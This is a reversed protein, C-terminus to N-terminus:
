SGKFEVGKKTNGHTGNLYNDCRVIVADKQRYNLEPDHEAKKKIASLEKKVKEPPPTGAILKNFVRLSLTFADPTIDKINM